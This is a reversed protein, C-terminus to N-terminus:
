MFRKIVKLDDLIMQDIQHKQVGPHESFKRRMKWHPYTIQSFLNQVRLLDNQYSHRLWLPISENKELLRNCLREVARGNSGGLLGTIWPTLAKEIPIELNLAPYDRNLKPPMKSIDSATLTWLVRQLSVLGEKLTRKGKFAGFVTFGEPHEPDSNIDFTWLELPSQTLKQRKLKIFSYNEPRTNMFNFLPKLKRLYNNESLLAEKESACEIFEIKYAMRVLRWMKKSPSPGHIQTYQSLRKKLNKAKGVYLLTGNQGRFFYVGPKQPISKFFESGLKEKLPSTLKILSVQHTM